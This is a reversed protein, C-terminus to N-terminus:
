RCRQCGERLATTPMATAIGCLTTTRPGIVNSASRKRRKSNRSWSRLSREATSLRRRWSQSQPISPTQQLQQHHPHGGRAETTWVSAGFGFADFFFVVVRGKKSSGQMLMHITGLICKDLPLSVFGQTFCCKPLSGAACANGSCARPGMVHALPVQEVAPPYRSASSGVFRFVPLSDHRPASGCVHASGVCSFVALSDPVRARSRVAAYCRNM